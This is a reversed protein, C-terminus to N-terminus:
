FVWDGAVVIRMDAGFNKHTVVTCEEFSNLSSEVTCTEDNESVNCCIATEGLTVICM